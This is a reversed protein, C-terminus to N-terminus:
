PFLPFCRLNASSVSFKGTFLSTQPPTNNASIQKAAQNIKQVAEWLEPGIIAEHAGEHSIWESEPKRIMTKDKYSRSGTCNQTLKQQYGRRLPRPKQWSQPAM